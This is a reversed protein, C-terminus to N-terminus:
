GRSLHEPQKRNSGGIPACGGTRSGREATVDRHRNSTPQLLNARHEISVPGSTAPLAQPANKKERGVHPHRMGSGVTRAFQGEGSNLVDLSFTGVQQTVTRLSDAELRNRM